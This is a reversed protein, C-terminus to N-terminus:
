QGALKKKKEEEESKRGIDVLYNLGKVALFGLPNSVGVLNNAIPAITERPATVVSKAMRISPGALGQPYVRDAITAAANVTDENIYPAIADAAKQGLVEAGRMAPKALGGPSWRESLSKESTDKKGSFVKVTNDIDQFWEGEQLQSRLKAYNEDIVASDTIQEGKPGRAANARSVRLLGPNEQVQLFANREDTNLNRDLMEFEEPGYSIGLYDVTGGGTDQVAKMRNRTAAIQSKLDIPSLKDTGIKSAIRGDLDAVKLELSRRDADTSASEIGTVLNARIAQLDKIEERAEKSLSQSEVAQEPSKVLRDVIRTFAEVPSSGAKVDELYNKQAEPTWAGRMQLDTITEDVESNVADFAQNKATASRFQTANIQRYRNRWGDVWTGITPAFSRLADMPDAQTQQNEDAPQAAAEQRSVIDATAEIPGKPTARELGLDVPSFSGRDISTANPTVAYQGPISDLVKMAQQSAAQQESDFDSVLALAEEPSVDKGAVGKKRVFEVFQPNSFYSDFNM